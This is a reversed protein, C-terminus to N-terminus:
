MVSAKLCVPPDLEPLVGECGLGCLSDGARGLLVGIAVSGNLVLIGISPNVIQPNAITGEGHAGHVEWATTCAHCMVQHGCIM